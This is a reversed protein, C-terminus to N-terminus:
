EVTPVTRCVMATPRKSGRKECIKLHLSIVMVKSLRTLMSPPKIMVRIAFTDHTRYMEANTCINEIIVVVTRLDAKVFSTDLSSVPFTHIKLLYNDLGKFPM